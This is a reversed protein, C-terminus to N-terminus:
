SKIERYEQPTIGVNKKFAKTFYNCDNYGVLVAIEKIKRTSNELYERASEMRCESIYQNITIGTEKKFIVCIYSGSLCFHGSISNLSLSQDSSNEKIYRKIKQALINETRNEDMAKFFIDLRAIVYSEIESLFYLQFMLDRSAEPSENEEFISGGNMQAVREIQLVVKAFFDKVRSTPTGDYKRLEEVIEKIFSICEERNNSQLARYFSLIMDDSFEFCLSIHREEYFLVTCPKYFFGRQLAIVATNYSEYLDFLNDVPAGTVIMFDCFSELIGSLRYCMNGIESNEVPMGSKNSLSIHVVIVTEDRKAVMVTDLGELSLRSSLLDCVANQMTERFGTIKKNGGFISVLLTIYRQNQRIGPFCINLYDVLQANITSKKILGLAIQNKLAPITSNLQRNIQINKEKEAEEDLRQRVTSEITTKLEDLNIPKEIYNVASLKIASKLYEKDSYGSMFIISCGPIFERIKFSMKIGDMRPMRVDTLIIDPKFVEAAAIANIGDDATEVGAIGMEEWPLMSAIGMRTYEEDEVILLRM